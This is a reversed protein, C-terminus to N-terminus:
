FDFQERVSKAHQILEAFGSREFSELLEGYAFAMFRVEAGEVLQAFRFIEVAHELRDKEPIRTRSPLPWSKPEAYLYALVPTLARKAAQTRIGFAQKVLRAADLREFRISRDQLAERLRQYPGMNSGWMNRSYAGSFVDIPERDARRFPEFRKSEIGILATDTEIGVDLWPHTGGRWPLRFEVQPLVSHPRWKDTWGPLAPLAFPRNIFFGFTNAVLAASSHRSTFKHESLENGPAQAYRALIEAAPLTDLLTARVAALLDPPVDPSAKSM